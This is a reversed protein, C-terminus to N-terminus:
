KQEIKLEKVASEILVNMQEPTLNISVDKLMREVFYMCFRKKEEGTAFVMEAYKVAKGTWVVITNLESQMYKERMWPIVYGSIIACLLMIVLKVINFMEDSM